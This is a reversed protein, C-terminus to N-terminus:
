QKLPPQLHDNALPIAGFVFAEARNHSIVVVFSFEVSVRSPRLKEPFWFNAGKSVRRMLFVWLLFAILLITSGIMLAIWGDPHTEERSVLM